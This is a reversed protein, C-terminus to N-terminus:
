PLTRGCVAAVNGRLLPLVMQLYKLGWPNAAYMGLLPDDLYAQPIGYSESVNGVSRSSVISPAPGTLGGMAAKLDHVLWFATLYLYGLKISDDDGWLAQNFTQRAEAFAREIDEDTVYNEVNDSVKVWFDADTPPNGTNGDVLSDYFLETTPYYVRNGTNYLKTDDYVPLFPFARKFLDKFDQVTIDNLDM